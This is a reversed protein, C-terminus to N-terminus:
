KGFMYASLFVVALNAKSQQLPATVSPNINRFLNQRKFFSFFFVVCSLIFLVIIGSVVERAM